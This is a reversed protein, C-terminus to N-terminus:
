RTEPPSPQAHRKRWMRWLYFGVAGVSVIVLGPLWWQDGDKEVGGAESKKCDQPCTAADEGYFSDCVSDLNCTALYSIDYELILTNAPNYIKLKAGTPSYPLRLGTEGQDLIKSGGLSKRLSPSDPDSFIEPRPDFKVSHLINDNKDLVEIRFDGLRFDGSPDGTKGPLIIVKRDLNRDFSLQGHDYYLYIQYVDAKASNAGLLVLTLVLLIMKIRFIAM